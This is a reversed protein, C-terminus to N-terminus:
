EESCPHFQCLIGGISSPQLGYMCHSTICFLVESMGAGAVGVPFSSLREEAFVPDFRPQLETMGLSISM